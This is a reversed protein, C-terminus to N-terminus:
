QEGKLFRLSHLEEVKTFSGGDDFTAKFEIESHTLTIDFKVVGTGSREKNMAHAARLLRVLALQAEQAVDLSPRSAIKM